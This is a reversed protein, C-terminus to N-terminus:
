PSPPQVADTQVQVSSHDSRVCPPTSLPNLPNLRHACPPSSLTQDGSNSASLSGGSAVHDTPMNLPVAPVYSPLSPSDSSIPLPSVQPSTSAESPTLMHCNHLHIPRNTLLPKGTVDLCEYVAGWTLSPSEVSALSSLLLVTSVICHIHGPRIRHDGMGQGGSECEM